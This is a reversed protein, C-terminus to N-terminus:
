RRNDHDKHARRKAKKLARIYPDDDATEKEAAKRKQRSAKEAATAEAAAAAAAQSFFERAKETDGAAAYRAAAEELAARDPLEGEPVLPPPAAAQKEPAAAAAAAKRRRFLLRSLPGGTWNWLWLLAPEPDLRLRRVAVDLPFLCLALILLYPLLDTPERGPPLDHAFLGRSEPDRELADLKFLRPPAKGDKKPAGAAATAALRRLLGLNPRFDLFEPSYSKVLGTVATRPETPDSADTVSVAYAGEGGVPFTAEYRGPATMEFHLKHVKAEPNGRAVGPEAASGILKAFNLYRGEKDVGEVLVRGHDGELHTTVVYDRPLAPRAVWRLLNVWFKKYESWALWEGAWAATNASTFAAAKGLGYRWRAFLPVREGELVTFLHLEARDKISTVVMATPRPFRGSFDRLLEGPSGLAIPIGHENVHILNKRVVLAEKLFIQPLKKPNKVLYFRGGTTRAINKLTPLMGPSDPRIIVFTISIKARLVATLTRRGPPAPDGDSIIICHKLSVNKLAGLGSAAMAVIRDFDPMDSPSCGNILQFLRAKNSAPMMPFLWRNGRFVDFFLLGAYDRPSLVHVAAKSIIKAWRNGQPFECTHLVLCLAGSPMIRRNRLDMRVPLAKEVPSGLWGGAGFSQPGGIMVLGAGQDRVCSEIVRLQQASFSYRPVDALIIAEYRRYEEPDEPMNAGLRVDLSIKEGEMARLLPEADAPTGALLLLRAGAAVNAFAYVSNNNPLTDAAPDLPEVVARLEHLGGTRLKLGRFSVRNRGPKLTAERELMTKGFAEGTFLRVRVRTEIDSRLNVYADFTRGWRLEPPVVLKEVALEAGGTRQLPVVWVDTGRAQLRRLEELADGRTQRGDTFLLVRKRAGTPFLAGARRLGAQIDTAEPRVAAHGRNVNPVTFLKTPTKESAARGGFLVLGVEDDPRKKKLAKKLFEAARARASDPVSKSADLVVVVTLRDRELSWRLGAAAWLLLAVLWVRLVFATWRRGRSLGALSHAQLWLLLLFLPPFLASLWPQRFVAAPATGTRKGELLFFLPPGFAAALMFAFLIFGARRSIRRRENGLGRGRQRFLAGVATLPGSVLMLWLILIGM